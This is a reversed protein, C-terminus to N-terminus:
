ILCVDSSFPLWLLENFSLVSDIGVKLYTIKDFAEFVDQVREVPFSLPHSGSLEDYEMGEELAELM